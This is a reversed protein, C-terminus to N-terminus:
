KKSKYAATPTVTTSSTTSQHSRQMEPFSRLFAKIWRPKPDVCVVKGNRKTVIIEVQRCHGGAPMLELKKISRRPIPTASTQRCRCRLESMSPVVHLVLVCCLTLAALLLPKTPM